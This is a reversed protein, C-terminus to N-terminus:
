AAPKKRAYIEEPEPNEVKPSLLLEDDDGYYYTLGFRGMGAFGCQGKGFTVSVWEGGGAPMPDVGWSFPCVEKTEGAQVSSSLQLQAGRSITGTGDKDFTVWDGAPNSWSGAVQAKTPVPFDDGDACGTVTTVLVAGLVAALVGQRRRRTRFM